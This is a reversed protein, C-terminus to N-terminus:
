RRTEEATVGVMTIAPLQHNWGQPVNAFAIRIPRAENPKIPAETLPQTTVNSGGVIGEVPRRITGLNQGQANTFTADVLVGNIATDGTNVLTGSLYVQNGVPAPTIRLDRFQVQAGTPQGPVQAANPPLQKKPTQPLWIILAILIAAAVIIAFPVWPAAKKKHQPPFKPHDDHHEPFQPSTAM